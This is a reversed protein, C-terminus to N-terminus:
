QSIRATGHRDFSIRGEKESEEECKVSARFRARLNPQANMSVDAFSRMLTSSANIARTRSILRDCCTHLVRLRGVGVGVGM